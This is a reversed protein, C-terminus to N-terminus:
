VIAQWVDRLGHLCANILDSSSNESRNHSTRTVFRKHVVPRRMTHDERREELKVVSEFIVDRVTHVVISIHHAFLIPYIWRRSLKM